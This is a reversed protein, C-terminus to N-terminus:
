SPEAILRRGLRLLNGFGITLPSFAGTHAALLREFLRREKALALVARRRLRPRDELALLLRSMIEPLRNIRRHEAQYCTLDGGAIAGALAVAQRFALGL